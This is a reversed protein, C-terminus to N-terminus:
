GEDLHLLIYLVIREICEELLMLRRRDFIVAPETNFGCFSGDEIARTLNLLARPMAEMEPRIPLRM